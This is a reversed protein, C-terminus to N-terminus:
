PVRADLEFPMLIGQRSWIANGTADLVLTTPLAKVDYNKQVAATAAVIPFARETQQFYAEADQRDEMAVGVVHVDPHGAAFRDVTPMTAKCAPCWSATFYLVVPKGRLAGLQVQGGQGKGAVIPATFDPAQGQVEVGGRLTGILISGFGFLMLAFFWWRVERLSAQKFRQWRSQPEIPQEPSTLVDSVAAKPSCQCGYLLTDTKGVLEHPLILALPTDALVV